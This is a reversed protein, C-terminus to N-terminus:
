RLLRQIVKFILEIRNKVKIKWGLDGEGTPSANNGHRVYLILPKKYFYVNGKIEALLGIWWDHMHISQPIPLTYSLVSHRFAMCCGMYANKYVNKLIGPQSKRFEFFSEYIIDLNENVVTCDSLVLDYKTLLTITDIVKTPLWIDDQDSLFIFYGTAYSLANQFNGVPGRPGPNSIFKIRYDQLNEVIVRTNDTSLDDSIILEDADTLQSLISNLQRLIFKEGNYSALCVSIKNM